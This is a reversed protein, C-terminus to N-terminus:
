QVSVAQLMALMSPFAYLSAARLIHLLISPLLVFAKRPHLVSPLTEFAAPAASPPTFCVSSLVLVLCTISTLLCLLHLLCVLCTSCTQQLGPYVRLVSEFCVCYWKVSNFTLTALHRSNVLIGRFERFSSRVLLEQIDVQSRCVSKGSRMM